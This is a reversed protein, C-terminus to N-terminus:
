MNDSNNQYVPQQVGMQLVPLMELRNKQRYSNSLCLVMWVRKRWMETTSALQKCTVGMAAMGRGIHIKNLIDNNTFLKLIDALSSINESCAAPGPGVPSL